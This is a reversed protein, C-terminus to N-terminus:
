KDDEEGGAKDLEEKLLEEVKSIGWLYQKGVRDKNLLDRVRLANFLNFKYASEKNKCSFIYEGYGGFVNGCIHAVLYEVNPNYYDKIGSIYVEINKTRLTRHVIWKEQKPPQYEDELLEKKCIGGKYKCKECEVNIGLIDRLTDCFLEENAFTIFADKEMESIKKQLVEWNKM